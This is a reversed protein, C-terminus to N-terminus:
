DLGLQKWTDEAEEHKVGLVQSTMNPLAGMRALEKLLSRRILTSFSEGRAKAIRKGIDIIDGPLRTSVIKMKDENDTDEVM